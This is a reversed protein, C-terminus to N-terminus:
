ASLPLTNFIGYPVRSEWTSPQEIGLGYLIISAVDQTVAKGSPQGKIVNGKAGAVAITTTRETKSNGGHGGLYKHGHDTVLIFLTDKDWGKAVYENYVEGIYGDVREISKWYEDSKRGGAHGYEDVQAFYMFGIKPDTGKRIESIFADKMQIDGQTLFKDDKHKQPGSIKILNDLDEFIGYNIPYWAAASLMKANPYTEACVKFASPYKPKSYKKNEAVLNNVGHKQYRVGHFMSTWNHASTTPYQSMANYNVSGEGFITDINPTNVEPFYNGTGDVGFVLVREYTVANKLDDSSPLIGDSFRTFVLAGLCSLVIAISIVVSVCIVIIKHKKIFALIGKM